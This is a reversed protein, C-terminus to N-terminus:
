VNAPLCALRTVTPWAPAALTMALTKVAIPENGPKKRLLTPKAGRGSWAKPPLRETVPAWMTTALRIGMAYLM